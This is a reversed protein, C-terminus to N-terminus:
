QCPLAKYVKCLCRSCREPREQRECSCGLGRAQRVVTAGHEHRVDQLLLLAGSVLPPRICDWQGGVARHKRRPRPMGNPLGMVM